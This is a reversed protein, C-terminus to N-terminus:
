SNKRSTMVIRLVSSSTTTPKLVPSPCHRNLALTLLVSIFLFSKVTACFHHPHICTSVKFDYVGQQWSGQGVGQFTRGLGETNDFARGYAPIVLNIKEAPVNAQLYEKIADDACRPTGQLVSTESSMYLNSHYGTFPSWPGTFDYAKVNLFDVIKALDAAPLAAIQDKAAGVDATLLYYPKSNTRRSIDSEYRDLEERVATFLEIVNAKDNAEPYQWDIQIGDFGYTKIMNVSTTAFRRRSEENNAFLNFQKGFDPGGLGFLLKLNRNQAKINIFQNINGYLM